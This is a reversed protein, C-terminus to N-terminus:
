VLYKHIDFSDPAFSEHPILNIFTTLLHIQNRLLGTAGKAKVSITLERLAVHSRSLLHAFSM